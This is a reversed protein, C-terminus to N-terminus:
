AGITNLVNIKTTIIERTQELCFREEVCDERLNCEPPLEASVWVCRTTLTLTESVSEWVTLLKKLLRMGRHRRGYTNMSDIDVGQVCGLLKKNAAGCASLHERLYKVDLM